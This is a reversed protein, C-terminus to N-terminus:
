EFGVGFGQGLASSASGTQLTAQNISIDGALTELMLGKTSENVPFEGGESYKIRGLFSELVTIDGGNIGESNDGLAAFGLFGETGLNSNFIRVGGRVTAFF